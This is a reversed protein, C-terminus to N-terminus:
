YVLTAKSNIAKLVGEARTFKVGLAKAERMALYNHLAGTDVIVRTSGENVERNIIMSNGEQHNITEQTTSAEEGLHEVQGVNLLRMNTIHM